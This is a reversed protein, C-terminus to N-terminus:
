VYPIWNTPTVSPVTIIKFTYKINYKVVYKFFTELM